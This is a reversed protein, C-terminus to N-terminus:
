FGSMVDRAEQESLIALKVRALVDDPSAMSRLLIIKYVEKKGDLTLQRKDCYLSYAKAMREWIALENDPNLDRKFNDAWQDATQSDIEAFVKRIAAIRGLQKSTLTERQLPGKQLENPDIWQAKSAQTNEVGVTGSEPSANPTPESCSTLSLISIALWGPFLVRYRQDNM